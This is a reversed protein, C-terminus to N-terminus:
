LWPSSRWIMSSDAANGGSNARRMPLCHTEGFGDQFRYLHEDYATTTHLRVTSLELQELSLQPSSWRDLTIVSIFLLVCQQSEYWTVVLDHSLGADQYFMVQEELSQNESNYTTCCCPLSASSLLQACPRADPWQVAQSPCIVPMPSLCFGSQHSGWVNQQRAHLLWGM